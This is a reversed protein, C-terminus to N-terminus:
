APGVASDVVARRLAVSLVSSIYGLDLRRRNEGAASGRSSTRRQASSIRATEGVARWETLLRELSRPRGLIRPSTGRRPAPRAACPVRGEGRSPRAPLRGGGRRRAGAPDRRRPRRGRRAGPAHGRPARAAPARHAGVFDKRSVAVLLPRGLTHLEDLRRLVEVSEAPTKALDIGPDFVLQEDSVGRRRAEDARERLLAAADQVVDAYRPFGKRKPSLRTHTIV